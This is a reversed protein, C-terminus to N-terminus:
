VATVFEKVKILTANESKKFRYELKKLLFEADTKELEVNEVLKQKIISDTKKFKSELKSALLNSEEVTLKLTSM